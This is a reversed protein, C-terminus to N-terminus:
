MMNLIERIELKWSADEFRPDKKLVEILVEESEAKLLYFGAINESKDDLPEASLADSSGSLVKGSPQFPQADLLIGNNKLQEFYAGMKQIHQKQQEEPLNFISEGQPHILVM